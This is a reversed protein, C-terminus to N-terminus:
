APPVLPVPAAGAGTILTPAGPPAQPPPLTPPPGGRLWMIVEALTSAGVVRVGPVLAAEAANQAAVVVTDSGPEAAVVAPLVGPVPRLRGDLGLEALRCTLAQPQRQYALYRDPRARDDRLPREPVATSRTATETRRCAHHRRSDLRPCDGARGPQEGPPTRCTGGQDSNRSMAATMENEIRQLEMQRAHDGGTTVLVRESLTLRTMLADIAENVPGFIPAGYVCRQEALTGSRGRGCRYKETGHDSKHRYLRTGCACYIYGSYAHETRRGGKDAHKFSRTAMAANAANFLEESVLAEFVHGDREGLYTRRAIMDTVRKVRWPGYPKGSPKRLDRTMETLWIAVSTATHGESIRRFAEKALAGTVPDIVFTKHLKAGDIRYGFAPPGIAAGNKHIIQRTDAHKDRV